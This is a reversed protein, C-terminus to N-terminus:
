LGEFRGTRLLQFDARKLQALLTPDIGPSAFFGLGPLSKRPGHDTLPPLGFRTAYIDILGQATICRDARGAYVARVCTFHSDFETVVQDDRLRPVMVAHVGTLRGPTAVRRDATNDPLGYLSAVLPTPQFHTRIWGADLAAAHMTSPLLIWAQGLIAPNAIYNLMSERKVTHTVPEADTYNLVVGDLVTVRPADIAQSAHRILLVELDTAACTWSILVALAGTLNRLLM